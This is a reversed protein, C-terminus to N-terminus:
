AAEAEPEEPESDDQLIAIEESSWDGPEEPFIFPEEVPIQHSSGQFSYVQLQPEHQLAKTFLGALSETEKHVPIHQFEPHERNLQEALLQAEKFGMMKKSRGMRGNSNCKWAIVYNEEM